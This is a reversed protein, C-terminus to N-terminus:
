GGSSRFFGSALLEVLEARLKPLDDHVRDRHGPAVEAGAHAYDLEGDREMVEVVEVVAEDPVDSVLAIRVLEERPALVAEMREPLFVAEAPEGVLPLAFVVGVKLCAPVAADAANPTAM